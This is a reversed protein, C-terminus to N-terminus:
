ENIKTWETIEVVITKEYTHKVVEVPQDFFEDNQYETLGKYWNIEFYRNCLLIISRIAVTWRGRDGEDHQVECGDYVLTQLETDTLPEGKDIKDVMIENFHERYYKKEEELRRAEEEKLKDLREKEALKNLTNQKCTPLQKILFIPMDTWNKNMDKYKKCKYNVECCEDFFRDLDASSFGSEKFFSNIEKKTAM